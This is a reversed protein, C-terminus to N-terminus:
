GHTVPEASICLPLGKQGAPRRTVKHAYQEPIAVEILDEGQEHQVNCESINSSVIDPNKALAEASFNLISGKSKDIAYTNGGAGTVYVTVRDCNVLELSALFEPVFVCVRFGKDITVSKPKGTIYINSNRCNGIYVGSLVTIDEVKVNTQNWQWEVFYNDGQKELTAPKSPTPESKAVVKPKPAELPPVDKQNKTKMDDTVKKLGSTVNLGQNLGALPNGVPKAAAPAAVPAAAAKPAVAAVPATASAGSIYDAFNKGAPNWDLGLKFFEKLYKSFETLVEKLALSFAKVQALKADGEDKAATLARNIWMGSADRMGEVHAFTPPSFPWTLFPAAENLAKQLNINKADRDIKACANMCEVSPQLFAVVDQDAPKKCIAAAKIVKYQNDWATVFAAKQAQLDAFPEFAAFFKPLQSDRFKEFEMVFQLGQTSADDMEDGKKPAPAGGSVGLAELRAVAAELRALLQEQSM